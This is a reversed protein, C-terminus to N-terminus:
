PNAYDPKKNNIYVLEITGIRIIDGECLLRETIKNGNVFIGNKSKNDEILWNNGNKMLRCHMRSAKPDKLVIDSSEERGINIKLLNSSLAFWSNPIGNMVILLFDGETPPQKFSGLLNDIYKIRNKIVDLRIESIDSVELLYTKFEDKKLPSIKEANM